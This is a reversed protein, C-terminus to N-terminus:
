QANLQRLMKHLLEEKSLERDNSSSAVNGNNLTRTAERYEPVLREPEQKVPQNSETQPKEYLKAYKDFTSKLHDEVHNLAEELPLVTKYKDFYEVCLDFVMDYSGETNNLFKYKSEQQLATQEISEKFETLANEIRQQELQQQKAQEKEQWKKEFIEEPSLQKPESPSHSNLIRDTLEEYSIGSAELLKFAAEPDNPNSKFAEIATLVPDIKSKKSEWEQLQQKAKQQQERFKREAAAVRALRRSASDQSEEPTATTTPQAEPQGEVKEVPVNITTSTPKASEPNAVPTATINPSTLNM